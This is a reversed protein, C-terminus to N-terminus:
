LGQVSIVRENLVVHVGAQKFFNEVYNIAKSPSKALLNQQSNVITIKKDKWRDVIEAALEVGVAGGGIILISACSDVASTYKEMDQARASIITCGTSDPFKSSPTCFLSDSYRAGSCIVLYDFDVDSHKCKVKNTCVQVVQDQIINTSILYEDHAKQVQKYYEPQQLM